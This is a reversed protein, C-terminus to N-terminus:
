DERPAIYNIRAHVRHRQPFFLWGIDGDTFSVFLANNLPDYLCFEIEGDSFGWNEFPYTALLTLDTASYKENRIFFTSSGPPTWHMSWPLEYPTSVDIAHTETWTSKDIRCVRQSAGHGFQVILANGADFGRAVGSTSAQAGTLTVTQGNVYLENASLTGNVVLDYIDDDVTNIFGKVQGISNIVTVNAPYATGDLWSYGASFTSYSPLRVRLGFARAGSASITAYTPSTNIIAGTDEGLEWVALRGNVGGSVAAYLNDDTTLGFTRPLAPNLSPSLTANGIFTRAENDWIEIGDNDTATTIWLVKTYDESYTLGWGNYFNEVTPTEKQYPWTV